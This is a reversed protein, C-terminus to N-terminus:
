LASPRPSTFAGFFGEVQQAEATKMMRFITATQDKSIHHLDKIDACYTQLTTFFEELIQAKAMSHFFADRDDEMHLLDDTDDRYLDFLYLAKQWETHATYLDALILLEPSLLTPYIPTHNQKKSM